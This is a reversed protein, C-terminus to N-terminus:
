SLVNIVVSIKFIYIEVSEPVNENLDTHCTFFGHVFAVSENGDSCEVMMTMLKGGLTATM